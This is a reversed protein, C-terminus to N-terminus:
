AVSAGVASSRAPTAAAPATSAVAADAPSSQATSSPPGGREEGPPDQRAFYPLHVHACRKCAKPSCEADLAECVGVKRQVLDQLMGAPEEIRNHEMRLWLTRVRSGARRQKQGRCAAAIIEESGRRTLHNYSLHLQELQPCEEVLRSLAPAAQDNIRNRFLKVVCLGRCKLGVDLVAQCGRWVLHNQSLDIEQYPLLEGQPCRRRHLSVKAECQRACDDDDLDSKSLDLLWDRKGGGM